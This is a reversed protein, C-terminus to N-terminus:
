FENLILLDNRLLKGPERIVLSNIQYFANCIRNAVHEITQAFLQVSRNARGYQTTSRNRNAEAGSKQRVHAVPATDATNLAGSSLLKLNKWDVLLRDDFMTHEMQRSSIKQITQALFSIVHFVVSM